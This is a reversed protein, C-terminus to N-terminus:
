FSNALAFLLMVKKFNLAKEIVWDHSLMDNEIFIVENYTDQNVLLIQRSKELVIADSITLFTDGSIFPYSSNRSKLYKNNKNNKNNKNFIKNKIKSLM